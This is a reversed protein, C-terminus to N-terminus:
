LLNFSIKYGSIEMWKACKRNSHLFKFKSLVTNMLFANNGFINDSVKNSFLRSFKPMIPSIPTTYVTARLFANVTM